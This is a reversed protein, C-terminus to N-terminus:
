GNWIKTIFLHNRYPESKKLIDLVMSNIEKCFGRQDQLLNRHEELKKIIEQLALSKEWEEKAAQYPELFAKLFLYQREKAHKLGLLLGEMMKDMGLQPMSSFKHLITLSSEYTEYLGELKEHLEESKIVDIMCPAALSLYLPFDERLKFYLSALSQKNAVMEPSAAPLSPNINLCSVFFGPETIQALLEIYANSLNGIQRSVSKLYRNEGFGQDFGGGAFGELFIHHDKLGELSSKLEEIDTHPGEPAIALTIKSLDCSFFTQLAQRAKTLRSDSNLAKTYWVVANQDAEPGQPLGGRGNQYMCGLNRQAVAQGQEAAKTYWKIAHQDAEPGQPLGGRGHQYMCGLLSQVMADGQEAAKTYWKIAHQDAEPGKPLGARGEQYMFGLLAQARADGQEAAKTYWKIAHQDAELGQPSGARGEKYM